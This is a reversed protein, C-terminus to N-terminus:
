VIFRNDTAIRDRTVTVVDQAVSTKNKKKKKTLSKLGKLETTRERDDEPITSPNSASRTARLCDPNWSRCSLM